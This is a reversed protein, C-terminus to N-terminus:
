SVPWSLSGEVLPVFTGTLLPAGLVGVWLLVARRVLGKWSSVRPAGLSLGLLVRGM